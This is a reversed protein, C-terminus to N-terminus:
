AMVAEPLAPRVNNRKLARLYDGIRHSGHSQAEGPSIWHVAGIHRFKLFSFPLYCVGDDLRCLNTVLGENAVKTKGRLPQPSAFCLAPIGLSVALIQASAAGLSHGIIRKARGKAFPYVIRAHRLFGAHWTRGSDGQDVVLNFNGWDSVENTGPIILTGDNLLAAQAGMLNLEVAVQGGLTRAYARDILDAAKSIDM